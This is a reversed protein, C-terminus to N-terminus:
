YGRCENWFTQDTIVCRNYRNSDYGYELYTICDMPFSQGSTSEILYWKEGDYAEVWEHLYGRKKYDGETMPVVKAEEGPIVSFLPICRKYSSLCGGMTRAPIGQARLLATNLRSMSVCDGVKSNLVDSAKESYCYNVSIKSSYKVNQVTYKITKDIADKPSSSSEKISEALNYIDPHSYDFDHEEVKFQDLGEVDWSGKIPEVAQKPSFALIIMLAVLAYIIYKVANATVKVM